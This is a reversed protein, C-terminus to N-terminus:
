HSVGLSNWDAVSEVPETEVVERVAEQADRAVSAMGAADPSFQRVVEEEYPYVYKQTYKVFLIGLLGTFPFLSMVVCFGLDVYGM